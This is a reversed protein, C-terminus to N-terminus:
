RSANPKAEDPSVGMETELREASARLRDLIPLLAITQGAAIQAKSRELSDRWGAPSPFPDAAESMTLNYLLEGVKELRVLAGPVARKAKRNPGSAM